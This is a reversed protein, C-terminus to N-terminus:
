ETILKPFPILAFHTTSSFKTSSLNNTGMYCLIVDNAQIHAITLMSIPIWNPLSAASYNPTIHAWKSATIASYSTGGHDFTRCSGKRYRVSPVVTPPILHENVFVPQNVYMIDKIPNKLREIEEGLEKHKQELRSLNQDENM